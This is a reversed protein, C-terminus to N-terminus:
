SDEPRKYNFAIHFREGGTGGVQTVPSRFSVQSIGDGQELLGILATAQGSEGRIDVDGDRYNLTQVWTNDPLLDTLKRLLNTMRQQDRKRQLVEVSGLRARELQERVSNVQEAAARMTRLERQLAEHEQQRQWIPSILVAILLTFIGAVVLTTTLIGLHSQRPRESPPLLNANRWAGRWRLHTAPMGAEGLRELWEAARDRRCVALEVRLKSGQAATGCARVDYYVDEARFPTLRDIEYGIVRGLSDRVQLPLMTSRVLVETEPLELVTATWRQRPGSIADSVPGPTRLDLVGVPERDGLLDIMLEADDGHV